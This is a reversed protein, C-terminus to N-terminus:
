RQICNTRLSIHNRNGESFSYSRKRIGGGNRFRKTQICVPNSMASEMSLSLRNEEKEESDLVVNRDKNEIDTSYQISSVSSRQTSHRYKYSGHSRQNNGGVIHGHRGLRAKNYLLSGAQHISAGRDEDKMPDLCQDFTVVKRSTNGGPSPHTSSPAGAGPSLGHPSLVPNSPSARPREVEPSAM